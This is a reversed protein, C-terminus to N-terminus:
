EVVEVYADLCVSLGVGTVGKATKITRHIGGGRCTTCKPNGYVLVTKPPDLKAKVKDPMVIMPTNSM